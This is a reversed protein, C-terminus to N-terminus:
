KTKLVTNDRLCPESRRFAIEYKEIDNGKWNTVSICPVTKKEKEQIHVFDDADDDDGDSM